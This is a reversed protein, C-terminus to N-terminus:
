GLEVGRSGSLSSLRDAILCTYVVFGSLPLKETSVEKEDNVAYRLRNYKVAKQYKTVTAYHCEEWM